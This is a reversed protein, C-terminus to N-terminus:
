GPSIWTRCARSRRSSAPAEAPAVGSKAKEEALKVQVLVRLRRGAEAARRNLERGARGFGPVRRSRFAAGGRGGQQAAPTRHPALRNGAGCAEAKGLAEQVRSEASSRQGAAAAAAVLARSRDQLGRGAHGRARPRVFAPPGGHDPAPGRRSARRDGAGTGVGAMGAEMAASSVVRPLVTTLVERGPRAGLASSAQADVGRALPAAAMSRASRGADAVRRQPISLARGAASSAGRRLVFTSRSCPSVV